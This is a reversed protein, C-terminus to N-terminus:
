NQTGQTLNYRGSCVNAKSSKVEQVNITVIFSNKINQCSIKFTVPGDYNHLNSQTTETHPDNKYGGGWGQLTFVVRLTSM